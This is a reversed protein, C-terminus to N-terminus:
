LADWMPGGGSECRFDEKMFYRTMKKKKKM